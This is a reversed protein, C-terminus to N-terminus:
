STERSSKYIMPRDNGELCCGASMEVPRTAEASQQAQPPSLSHQCCTSPFLLTVALGRSATQRCPLVKTCMGLLQKRASWEQPILRPASLLALLAIARVNFLSVSLAPSCRSCHHYPSQGDPRPESPQIGQQQRWPPFSPARHPWAAGVAEQVCRKLTGTTLAAPEMREPHQQGPSSQARPQSTM